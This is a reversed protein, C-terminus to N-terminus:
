EHEFVRRYGVYVVGVSIAYGVAAVVLVDLDPPFLIMQVWVLQIYGGPVFTQIYEVLTVSRAYNDFQYFLTLVLVHYIRFALEVAVVASVFVGLRRVDFKKSVRDVASESEESM